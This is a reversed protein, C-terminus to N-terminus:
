EYRLADVIQMKAAKNAPYVGFVVGIIISFVVSVIIASTPISLDIVMDFNKSKAINMAIIAALRSTLLGFAIGIIAGLISVFISETLFQIRISNNSAGMSKRVGIEMTRETVGVLMVNMVGIGGVILSIAAIISIVLTIVRIVKNIMDMQDTLLITSVEWGTGSFYSNFFENTTEKYEDLDTIKDLSFMLQTSVEEIENNMKQFYSYPIYFQTALEREDEAQLMAYQNDYEYVGVVVCSITIGKEVEINIQKGIPNENGFCNKAAFDSIVASSSGKEDDSKNIFRGDIIKVDSKFAETVGVIDLNAYKEDSVTVKGSGLWGYNLQSIDDEYIKMYEEVMESTFELEAPYEVYGMENIEYETGESPSFVVMAQNTSFFSNIFNNFTKEVTGGVTNIFIVSSIGVIIGLTTLFTRFKNVSLCRIASTIYEFFNM